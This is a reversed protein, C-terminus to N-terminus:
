TGTKRSAGDELLAALRFGCTVDCEMEWHQPPLGGMRELDLRLRPAGLLPIDAGANEPQSPLITVRWRGHAATAGRASCHRILFLPKAKATVRLKLRRSTAFGYLREKPSLVGIVAGFANSTVAEELVWLLDKENSATVMTVREPAMGLAALGYGYLRGFEQDENRKSCFCLSKGTQGALSFALALAGTEDGPAAGLLEHFGERFLRQPDGKANIKASSPFTLQKRMPESFLTSCFM